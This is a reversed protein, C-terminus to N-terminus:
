QKKSYLNQPLDKSHPVLTQILAEDWETNPISSMKEFLYTLYTEVKLRNEKASQVISYIISSSKAGTTTNSFLWNKRGIVFPKIAREARNNSLELRPDELVNKFSEFQNLNYQIAEGMKSKPLLSQNAARLEDHLRNFLPGLKKKREQQISELDVNTSLIKQDVSFLTNITKLSQSTIKAGETDSKMSVLAEKLKRRGHALCGVQTTNEIDKYVQYGDTQLYGKFDKLFNQPYMAKRGPQYEYIIINDDYVGSRYVWMYSKINESGDQHHLVQVTTEDSHIIDKQLLDSKMVDYIPALYKETAAIAWNSMTQRSINAGMNKFSDEIRYLPLAKAYKDNLISAVLRPSTSSKALFDNGQYPTQIDDTEDENEKRYVHYIDKQIYIEAPIYVLQEKDKTGINSYGESLLEDMKHEVVRVELDPNSESLKKRDAKKRTYTIEEEIVEEEILGEEVVPDATIDIEDFVLSLQNQLGKTKESKKGFLEERMQKLVAMLYQNQQKLEAVEQQSKVFFSVIEAKSMAEIDATELQRKEQKKM